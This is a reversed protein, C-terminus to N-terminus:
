PEDPHTDYDADDASWADGLVWRTLADLARGARVSAAQEDSWGDRGGGLVGVLTRLADLEAPSMESQNMSACSGLEGM